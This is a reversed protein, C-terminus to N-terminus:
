VTTPITSLNGVPHRMLFREIRELATEIDDLSATYSARIFGAGSDGFASGPIVAVREERLLTECFEEDTM